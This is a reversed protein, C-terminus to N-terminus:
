TTTVHGTLQLQVLTFASHGLQESSTAYNSELGKRESYDTLKRM